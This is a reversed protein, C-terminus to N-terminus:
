YGLVSFVRPPWLGGLAIVAISGRAAQVAPASKFRDIIFDDVLAACRHLIEQGSLEQGGQALAEQQSRLTSAM